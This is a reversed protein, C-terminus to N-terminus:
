GVFLSSGVIKLASGVLAVTYFLMDTHLIYTCYREVAVNLLGCIMKSGTIRLTVM